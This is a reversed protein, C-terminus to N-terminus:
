INSQEDPIGCGVLIRFLRYGTLCVRLLGILFVCWIAYQEVMCFLVYQYKERGRAAETICSALCARAPKYGTPPPREPPHLAPSVRLLTNGAQQQTHGRPKPMATSTPRVHHM